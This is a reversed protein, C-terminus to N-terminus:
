TPGLGLPAASLSVALATITSAPINTNRLNHPRNLYLLGPSRDQGCNPSDRNQIRNDSKVRRSDNTLITHTSSPNYSILM